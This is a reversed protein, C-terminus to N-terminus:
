SHSPSLRAHVAPLVSPEAICAAVDRAGRGGVTRPRLVVWWSYRQRVQASTKDRGGHQCDSHARILIMFLKEKVAVQKGEHCVM